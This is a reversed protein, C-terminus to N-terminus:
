RKWMLLINGKSSKKWRPFCFFFDSLALDPSYPPQSMPFMGNKTLFQQVSLTTHAPASTFWGDHLPCIHQFLRWFFFFDSFGFAAEWLLALQHVSVPPNRSCEGRPSTQVVLPRGELLYNQPTEPDGRTYIISYLIKVNVKIIFCFFLLKINTKEIANIGQSVSDSEGPKPIARSLCLQLIEARLSGPSIYYVSELEWVVCVCTCARVRM